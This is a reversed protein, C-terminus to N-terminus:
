RVPDLYTQGDTAVYPGWRAGDWYRYQFRGTPDPHWAPPPLSPELPAIPSQDAPVPEPEDTEDAEDGGGALDEGAHLKALLDATSLVEAGYDVAKDLRQPDCGTGLVVLSTNKSVNHSLVGGSQSVLEELHERDELEGLVVVRRGALPGTVTVPEGTPKVRAAKRARAQSALQEKSTGPAVSALLRLYTAEDVVPIGLSNASRAKASGSDANNTVLLSTKSNVTSLVDLGAELSHAFLQERPAKTEGTIAVHMGQILPGAAELRGPNVYTCKVTKHLIPPTAQALHMVPNIGHELALPYLLSFVGATALVDERADHFQARPLPVQCYAAVTDLKMNETHLDLARALTLTCVADHEPLTEGHRAYENSLFRWDFTVNHGVLVAGGLQSLLEDAIHEFSPAHAVSADTLGHIESAGMPCGPNVLSYWQEVPHGDAGCRAVAVSVVRDRRWYLGTTEVDVVAFEHPGAMLDAMHHNDCPPTVPALVRFLGRFVRLALESGV